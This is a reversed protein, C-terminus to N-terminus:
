DGKTELDPLIQISNPSLFGLDTLKKGLDEELDVLVVFVVLFDVRLYSVNEVLKM